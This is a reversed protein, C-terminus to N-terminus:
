QFGNIHKLITKNYNEFSYIKSINFANKCLNEQLEFNDKLRIIANLLENKNKWILMQSKNFDEYIRDFYEQLICCRYGCMMTIRNSYCKYKVVENISLVFTNYYNTIHYIKNGYVPKYKNINRSKFVYKKDNTYLDIIIYPIKSLYNIIDYRKKNIRGFHIIKISGTYSKIPIEIYEECKTPNFIQIAKNKYESDDEVIFSFDFNCINYKMTKKRTEKFKISDWTYGYIKIDNFVNRILKVNVNQEKISILIFLPIEKINKIDKIFSSYLYHSVPYIKKLECIHYYESSNKNLTNTTLYLVSM